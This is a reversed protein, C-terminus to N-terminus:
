ADPYDGARELQRRNNAQEKATAWRCNGPEYNGDNNPYRDISHKPSPKPGMDQLFLDFDKWRECVSIGRGGYYKFDKCGELTCRQWMSHWSNYESSVRGNAAHGHKYKLARLSRAASDSQYCGCSRTEGRVLLNGVVIPEEGCACRCLWRTQGWKTNEARSLVTLRDFVRGILDLPATM